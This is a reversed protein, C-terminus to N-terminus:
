GLARDGGAEPFKAGEDAVMGLDTAVANEAGPGEDPPVAHDVGSALPPSVERCTVDGFQPLIKRDDRSFILVFFALARVSANQL